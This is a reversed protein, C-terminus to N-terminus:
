FYRYRLKQKDFNNLSNMVTSFDLMNFIVFNQNDNMLIILKKLYKDLNMIVNTIIVIASFRFKNLM